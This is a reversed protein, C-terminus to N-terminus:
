ALRAAVGRRNSPSSGGPDVYEGVAGAPMDFGEQAVHASSLSLTTAAAAFFSPWSLSTFDHVSTFLCPRQPITCAFFYQARVHERQGRRAAHFKTSFLASPSKQMACCCHSLAVRHPASIVCSLSQSFAAFLRLRVFAVAVSSASANPGGPHRKTLSSCLYYKATKGYNCDSNVRQEHKPFANRDM